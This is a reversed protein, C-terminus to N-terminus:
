THGTAQFTKITGMKNQIYKVKFKFIQWECYSKLHSPLKPVGKQM